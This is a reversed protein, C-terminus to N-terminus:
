WMTDEVCACTVLTVTFRKTDCKLFDYPHYVREVVGFLIDFDFALPYVSYLIELNTLPIRSKSDSGRKTVQIRNHDIKYSRFIICGFSNKEPGVLRDLHRFSLHCLFKENM